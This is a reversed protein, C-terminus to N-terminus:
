ETFVPLSTFVLLGAIGIAIGYPVGENPNHLRDLWPSAAFRAPLPLRRYVLMCAALVGGAVAMYFLFMPLAQFGTWVSAAALLKADGGGVIRAFFLGAGVVLVVLGAGLHVLIAALDMGALLALAMFVVVLGVSIRNPIELTLTDSVMAWLMALPFLCSLLTPLM